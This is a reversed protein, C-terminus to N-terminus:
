KFKLISMFGTESIHRCLSMAGDRRLCHVWQYKHLLHVDLAIYGIYM